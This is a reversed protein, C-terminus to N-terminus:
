MLGKCFQNFSTLSSRERFVLGPHLSFFFLNSKSKSLSPNNKKKSLHQWCSWPWTFSTRYRSFPHFSLPNSCVGPCIMWRRHWYSHPKFSYLYLCMWYFLRSNVPPKLWPFSYISLFFFENLVIVQVSQCDKQHQHVMFAYDLIAATMSKIYGGVVWGASNKVTVLFDQFGTLQLLGM